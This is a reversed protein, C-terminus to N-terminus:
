THLILILVRKVYDRLSKSINQNGNNVRRAIRIQTINCKDSSSSMYSWRQFSDQLVITRKRKEPTSMSLGCNARCIISCIIVAGHFEQEVSWKRQNSKIAVECDLQTLVTKGLTAKFSWGSRVGPGPRWHWPDAWQWAKRHGRWCHMVHSLMLCAAKCNCQLLLLM